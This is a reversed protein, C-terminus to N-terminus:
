IHPTIPSSFSMNIFNDNNKVINQSLIDNNDEFKENIENYLNITPQKPPYRQTSKSQIINKRSM